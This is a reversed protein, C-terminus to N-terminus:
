LRVVMTARMLSRKLITFIVEHALLATRNHWDEEVQDQLSQDLLHCCNMRFLVQIKRALTTLVIRVPSHDSLVQTALIETFANSCSAMLSDFGYFRDFHNFIRVLDVDDVTNIQHNYWM